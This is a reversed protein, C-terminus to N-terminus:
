FGLSGKVLEVSKLADMCKWDFFPTDLMEPGAVHILTSLVAEDAGGPTGQRALDRAVVHLTVRVFPSGNQGHYSFGIKSYVGPLPSEATGFRRMMRWNGQATKERRYVVLKGTIEGMDGLVACIFQAAGEKSVLVVDKVAPDPKQVAQTLDRHMQEMAIAAEALAASLDGVDTMRRSAYFMSVMAGLVLAGLASSVIAEILTFAHRRM